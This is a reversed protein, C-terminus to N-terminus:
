DFFIYENLVLELNFPRFYIETHKIFQLVITIESLNDTQKSKAFPM